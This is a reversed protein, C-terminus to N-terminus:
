GCPILIIALELHQNELMWLPRKLSQKGDEEIDFNEVVGIADICTQYAQGLSSAICSYETETNIICDIKPTHFIHPIVPHAIVIESSFYNM